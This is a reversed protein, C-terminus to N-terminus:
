SRGTCTTARRRLRLHGAEHQHRLQQHAVASMYSDTVGTYSNLGYQFTRVFEYAGIDLTGNSPRAESSCPHVYQNVPTLSFGSCPGAASAANIAGTSSATLHYDYNAADQLYANSVAWNTTQTNAGSALTSVAQFINNQIQANTAATNNVGTTTGRNSVFTNNVVHLDTGPNGTVYQIMTGNATASKQIMNGLVISTGGAAFNIDFSSTATEDTIRNYLIYNVLASCRVEDGGVAMHVYCNQLTFSDVVGVKINGSGTGTYGNNYFESTSVTVTSGRGTTRCSATTATM